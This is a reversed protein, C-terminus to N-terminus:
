RELIHVACVNADLEFESAGMTHAAAIRAGEVQREGAEGKLQWFLETIQGTGSAGLPHGRSLLGGSPNVVPGKGGPSTNGAAIYRGGQGRDCLGLAETYLIEGISFADHCEVVDLDEPGIGAHEYAQAAARYAADLPEPADTFVPTGSTMAHGRVWVPDLGRSKVYDASCVIVASGGDVKPCCQFLTLPPAVAPSALVEEITTETRFHAYPNASAFRRSKVVVSALEEVTLGHAAMHESAKLAYWAPLNLGTDFVWNGSSQRARAELPGRAPSLIEVGFAMAVDCMGAKIWAIANLLSTSSSACANEINIIPVGTVGLRKLVRQGTAAGGAVTGCFAAQVDRAELGASALAGRVAEAGLGEHGKEAQKTFRTMSAGVIAVEHM